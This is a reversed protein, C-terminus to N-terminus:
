LKGFMKEMRIDHCHDCTLDYSHNCGDINPRSDIRRREGLAKIAKQKVWCRYLYVVTPITILLLIIAEKM